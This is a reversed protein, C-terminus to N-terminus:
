SVLKSEMGYARVKNSVRLKLMAAGVIQFEGRWGESHTDARVSDAM